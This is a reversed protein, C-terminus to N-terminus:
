RSTLLLSGAKTDGLALARQYWNSALTPDPKIGVLNTKALYQPDYTRGLEIAAQGNGAEAARQYLLRAASVDGLAMMAAGREMLKGVM